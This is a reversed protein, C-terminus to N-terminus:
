DPDIVTLKPHGQALAQRYVEYDRQSFLIFRIESFDYGPLEQLVTEVAIAAAQNIPYRYTGTSISPFALTKVDHTHALALSNKYCAALLEAEGSKGSYIPGVTHIVYRAELKGAWTIVAEGTPCGGQTRRFVDLGRM